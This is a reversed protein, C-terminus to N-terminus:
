NGCDHLTESTTGGSPAWGTDRGGAPSDDILEVEQLEYVEPEPAVEAVPAGLLVLALAGAAFVLPVLLFRLRGHTAITGRVPDITVM